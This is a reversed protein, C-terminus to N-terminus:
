HFWIRCTEVGSSSLNVKDLISAGALPSVGLCPGPMLLRLGLPTDAPLFNLQEVRLRLWYFINGSESWDAVM